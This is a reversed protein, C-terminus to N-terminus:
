CSAIASVILDISLAIVDIQHEPEFLSVLQNLGEKNIATTVLISPQMIQGYEYVWRAPLNPCLFRITEIWQTITEGTISGSQKLREYAILGVELDRKIFHYFYDSASWGDGLTSIRNGLALQAKFLDGPDVSDVGNFTKAYNSMHTKGVGSGGTLIILKM